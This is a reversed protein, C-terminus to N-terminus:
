SGRSISLLRPPPATSTQTKGEFGGGGFFWFCISRACLPACEDIKSSSERLRLSLILPTFSCSHLIQSNHQRIFKNKCVCGLCRYALLGASGTGHILCRGLGNGQVCVALFGRPRDGSPQRGRRRRGQRWRSTVATPPPSAALRRCGPLDM